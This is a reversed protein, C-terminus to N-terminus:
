YVVIICLRLIWVNFATLASSYYTLTCICDIHIKHGTHPLLVLVFTYSSVTNNFNGNNQGFHLISIRTLTTCSFIVTSTLRHAPRM